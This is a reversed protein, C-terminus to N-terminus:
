LIQLFVASVFGIDPFPYVANEWEENKGLFRAGIYTIFTVWLLILVYLPEWQMYLLYSVALLVYNGIKRNKLGLSDRKGIIVVLFFIIPFLWVFQFTNFIM